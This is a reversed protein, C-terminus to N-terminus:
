TALKRFYKDIQICLSEFAYKQIQMKLEQLREMAIM